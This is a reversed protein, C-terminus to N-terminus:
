FMTSKDARPGDSTACTNPLLPLGNVWFLIRLFAFWFRAMTVILVLGSGVVILVLWAM